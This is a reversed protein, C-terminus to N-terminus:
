AEPTPTATVVPPAFIPVVAKGVITILVVIFVVEVLLIL